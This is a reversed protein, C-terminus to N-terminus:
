VKLTIQTEPSEEQPRNEKGPCLWSWHRSVRDGYPLGQCRLADLKKKFRRSAAPVPTGGGRSVDTLGPKARAAVVSRAQEELERSNRAGRKEELEDREREGPIGSTCM